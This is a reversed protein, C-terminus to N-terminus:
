LVQHRGMQEFPVMEVRLEQPLYSDADIVIAKYRRRNHRQTYVDDIHRMACSLNARTKKPLPHYHNSMLCYAHCEIGFRQHAEYLGCMFDEYYADTSFILQRGRGRNM